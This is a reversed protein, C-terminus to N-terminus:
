KVMEQLQLSLQRVTKELWALREEVLAPPQLFTSYVGRIEWLELVQSIEMDLGTDGPQDSRFSLVEERDARVLRAARIGAPTVVVYLAGERVQSAQKKVAETILIDGPCIGPQFQMESGGVEFARLLKDAPDPVQLPPLLQLFEPEQHRNIYALSHHAPVLLPTAPGSKGPDAVKKLPEPQQYDRKFIDFGYLDNITLEKTLLLDISLGFHKSILVLTEIKPESRGEEYAGVSPRALHFLEAFAAQSLKKVTRIKKINKGIHSM